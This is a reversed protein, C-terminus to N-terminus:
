MIWGDLTGQTLSNIALSELEQELREAFASRPLVEDCGAVRAAHLVDAAVHSGYGIIRPSPTLQKLAAVFEAIALGQCQLDVFVVAPPTEKAHALLKAPDRLQVVSQGIARAAATIRSGYLLDDSLLLGATM